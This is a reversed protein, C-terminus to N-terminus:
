QDRFLVDEVWNQEFCDLRREKSKVVDDGSFERDPFITHKLFFNKGNNDKKIQFSGNTQLEYFNYIMVAPSTVGHPDGQFNTSVLFNTNKKPYMFLRADSDSRFTGFFTKRKTKVDYWLQIGVGCMLGTCIRPLMSIAVVTQDGLEYLKIQDWQEVMDLTYKQDDDPANLTKQTDLPILDGNIRISSRSYNGTVEDIWEVSQTGIKLKQTQSRWRGPDKTNNLVHTPREENIEFYNSLREYIFPECKQEQVSKVSEQAFCSISILILFVAIQLTKM